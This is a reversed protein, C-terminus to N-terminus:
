INEVGGTFLVSRKADRRRRRVFRGSRVGVVAREFALFDARNVCKRNAVFVSLKEDDPFFVAVADALRSREPRLFEVRLVPFEDALPVFYHTVIRVRPFSIEDFTRKDHPSAIIKIM